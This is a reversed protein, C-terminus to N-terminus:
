DEICDCEGKCCGSSSLWDLVNIVLTAALIVSLIVLFTKSHGKKNSDCNCM